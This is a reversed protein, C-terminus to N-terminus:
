HTCCPSARWCCYIRSMTVPLFTHCSARTSRHTGLAPLNMNMSRVAPGKVQPGAKSPSPTRVRSEIGATPSIKWIELRILSVRRCPLIHSRADVCGISRVLRSFSSLRMWVRM